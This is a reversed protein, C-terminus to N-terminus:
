LFHSPLCSFPIMRKGWTLETPKSREKKWAESPKHTWKWAWLGLCWFYHPAGGGWGSTTGVRSLHCIFGKDVKHPHSPHNQAMFVVSFMWSAENNTCCILTPVLLSLCYCFGVLLFLNPLWFFFTSHALKFFIYASYGFTCNLLLLIKWLLCCFM